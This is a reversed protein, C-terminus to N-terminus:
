KPADVEVELVKVAGGKHGRAEIVKGPPLRMVGYRARVGYVPREIPRVVAGFIVLSYLRNLKAATVYFASAEGRKKAAEEKKGDKQLKRAELSLAYAKKNVEAQRARIVVHAANRVKRLEIVEKSGGGSRIAAIAASARQRVEADKHKQAEGLQKLAKSGFELVDASAKKRTAFDESGFDAILRAIQKTEEASPAAAKPGALYDDVLKGAKKKQEETVSKTDIPPGPPRVRVGYEAQAAAGRAEAGFILACLLGGLWWLWTKTNGILRAM